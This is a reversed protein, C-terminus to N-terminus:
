FPTLNGVDTIPDELMGDIVQPWSPSTPIADGNIVFSGGTLTVEQGVMEQEYQVTFNGIFFDRTSGEDPPSPFNSNFGLYLFPTLMNLHSPNPLDSFTFGGKLFRIGKESRFRPHTPFFINDGLEYYVTNHPENVEAYANGSTSGDDNPWIQGVIRRCKGWTSLGETAGIVYGM